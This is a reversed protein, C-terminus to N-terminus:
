ISWGLTDALDAALRMPDFPKTLVGEVELQKFRECDSASAKATLLVVPVHRTRENTRLHHLTALGDMGPMMVDLLIADPLEVLASAIGEPGSSAGLVRYGGALELSLQAVERIDNDDDIVLVTRTM